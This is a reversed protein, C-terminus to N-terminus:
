PAAVKRITPNTPQKTRKRARSIDEHTREISTDENSVESPELGSTPLEEIEFFVCPKVHSCAGEAEGRPCEKVRTDKYIYNKSVSLNFCQADDLWVHAMTMIDLYLKAVNDCDPKVQHFYHKNSKPRNYWAVIKVSVPGTFTKINQERMAKIFFYSLTEKIGKQSDFRIKGSQGPRKWSLPEHEIILRLKPM